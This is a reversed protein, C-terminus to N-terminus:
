KKLFTKNLIKRPLNIINIKFPQLLTLLKELEFIGKSYEEESPAGSHYEYERPPSNEDIEM